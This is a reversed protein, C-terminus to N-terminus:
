QKVLLITKENTFTVGIKMPVFVTQLAVQLNKHTFSGTFKQKTNIKSADIKINYQNELDLIVTYLPTSKFSSEGNKWSPEQAIFTWNEPLSDAVKRFAKGQTLVSESKLTQAQVKGEFCFVEFFKEHAKVTFKTGLVTVKGESTQVTFDSGKAVKFYAEGTLTVNRNTEWNRKSFHISSKANLLVESNDPLTVALQEGFTTTYNTPQNLFYFIGFLLAISAVMGYVWNPILKRVTTEKINNKQQIKAQINKFTQNKHFTPPRLETSKTVIKEYLLFDPSSKFEELEESTLENNMWRALFTDDYNKNM